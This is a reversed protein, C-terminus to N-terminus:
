TRHFRELLHRERAQMAAAEDAEAHDHGLVHLVGHVVLLALEDDYTGTHEPAQRQAVRPCVVVDGLLLPGPALPADGDAGHGARPADDIPFALVDTPGESDMYRQNLGAIAEEDVFLLSLEADGSVGEALLVNRALDVWRAVEVPAEQQEDAGVVRVDGAPPAM